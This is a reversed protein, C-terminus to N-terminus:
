EGSIKQMKKKVRDIYDQRTSAVETAEKYRAIARDKKGQAAYIDGSMDLACFRWIGSPPLPDLKRLEAPAEGCKGRALLIGAASTGSNYYSYLGKYEIDALM